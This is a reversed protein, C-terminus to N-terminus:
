DRKKETYSASHSGARSGLGSHRGGAAEDHGSLGEPTGQWQYAPVIASLAHLVDKTNGDVAMQELELVQRRLADVPPLARPRARSMKVAPLREIIEDSGILEETLKEGPRVGTFVIPIDVDPVFGSLRILNRALDVVRLQDGMDLVFIEGGQALAAAQLVLYVAEPILMFYRRMDPHTITVPGGQRIQDLFMPVVSGNSALVNGFRVAAFTTGSGNALSQMLLEGIRKTVGMVSSPNVAKDTSILIMREVEAARAAEAVIRVGRVNNKVAECPSAEMLPVHKHAAAHFVIQPHHTEFLDMMRAADTVDAVAVEPACSGSRASLETMIAHLGNEYRDILVLSAPELRAIQRALESGISGGAGTVLVRAGRILDRVAGADQDVPARELLDEISLTRIHNVTVRGGVIDRLSPLTQIPVNYPELVGVVDRMTARNARPMAVLVADPQTQRMIRPLDHRTGLVKVGHIRLGVRTRDDDILGVPEYEYYANNRMDRLIMEGADGAGYILLRKDRDLHGAERYIRRGLRVGGLVVILLITDLLLVSRPYGPVGLVLKGIWFIASGCAAAGIIRWLDWIGTYRWLGQYLRFLAFVAGRIVVLPGITVEFLRWSEEPITGDFRFWFAIYNSLVVLALHIAVVVARRYRLATRIMKPM